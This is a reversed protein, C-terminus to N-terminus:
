RKLQPLQTLQGGKATSSIIGITRLEPRIANSTVGNVPFEPDLLDAVQRGLEASASLLEAIAPLPIRPWDQRLADNNEQRYAFTNLIATTHFFISEKPLCANAALKTAKDSLNVNVSTSGPLSAAESLYLPFYNSLGNGLNDGPYRTVYGRDFTEM